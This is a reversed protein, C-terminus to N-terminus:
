HECALAMFTCQILPLTWPPDQLTLAVRTLCGNMEDRLNGSQAIPVFYMSLKYLNMDNELM